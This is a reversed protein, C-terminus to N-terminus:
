WGTREEWSHPGEKPGTPTTRKIGEDASWPRPRPPNEDHTQSATDWISAETARGARGGRRERHDQDAGGHTQERHVWREDAMVCRRPEHM